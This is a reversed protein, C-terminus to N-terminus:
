VPLLRIRAPLVLRKPDFYGTGRPVDERMAGWHLCAVQGNGIDFDREWVSNDSNVTRALCPQHENSLRGIVQGQSINDGAHLDTHVSEYTTRIGGPHRLSVVSKDAVQGAFVVTADFPATVEQGTKGALDIGRHGAGYPLMHADFSRVLVAPTLPWHFRMIHAATDIALPQIASFAVFFLVPLLAPM